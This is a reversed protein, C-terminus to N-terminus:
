SGIEGAQVTLFINWRADDDAATGAADEERVIERVVYQDSMDARVSYRKLLLEAAVPEDRRFIHRYHRILRPQYRCIVVAATRGRKCQDTIPVYPLPCRLYRRGM